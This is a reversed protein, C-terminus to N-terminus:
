ALHKRVLDHLCGGTERVVKVCHRRTSDPDTRFHRVAESNQWDVQAIDACNISGYESTIRSFESIMEQGLKNLLRHNEGKPSTKGMAFGIAALAGSLAGCVHGSHGMGGAFSAMAATLELPPPEERFLEACANLVAQSCHFGDAFLGEAKAVTNEREQV